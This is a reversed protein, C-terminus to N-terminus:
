DKQDTGKKPAVAQAILNHALAVREAHAEEPSPPQGEDKGFRMVDATEFAKRADVALVRLTRELAEAVDRTLVVTDKTEELYARMYCVHDLIEEYADKIADRLNGAQLLTGYKELGFDKRQQVDAMVLDHISAGDNPKPKPQDNVGMEVPKDVHVRDPSIRRLAEEDIKLSEIPSTPCSKFFTTKPVTMPPTQAMDSIMEDVRQLVRELTRDSDPRYAEPHIIVKGNEITFAKPWDAVVASTRLGDLLPNDWLASAPLGDYIGLYKELGEHIKTGFQEGIAFQGLGLKSAGEYVTKALAEDIVGDVGKDILEAGGSTVARLRHPVAKVIDDAIPDAEPDWILRGVSDLWKGDDHRYLPIRTKDMEQGDFQLMYTGIHPFQQSLWQAVQRLHHPKENSTSDGKFKMTPVTPGSKCKAPEPPLGAEQIEEINLFVAWAHKVGSQEVYQKWAKRRTPTMERMAAKMGDKAQQKKGM